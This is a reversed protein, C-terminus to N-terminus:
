KKIVNSTNLDHDKDVKHLVNCLVSYLWTERNM